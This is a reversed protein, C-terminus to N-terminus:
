DIVTGVLSFKKGGGHNQNMFVALVKGEPSEVTGQDMRLRVTANFRGLTLDLAPNPRLHRDRGDHRSVSTHCTGVRVGDILAIEYSGDGAKPADALALSAAVLATCALLRTM